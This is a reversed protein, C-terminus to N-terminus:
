DAACSSLFWVHLKHHDSHGMHEQLNLHLGFVLKEFSLERLSLAVATLKFPLRWHDRGFIWAKLKPQSLAGIGPGIARPQEVWGAGWVGCHETPVDTNGM